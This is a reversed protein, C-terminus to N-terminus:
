VRYFTNNTGPITLPLETNRDEMRCEPFLSVGDRMPMIVKQEIIAIEEIDELTIYQGTANFFASFQFFILLM